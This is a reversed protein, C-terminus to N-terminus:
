KPWQRAKRAGVRGKHSSIMTIQLLSTLLSHLSGIELERQDKESVNM